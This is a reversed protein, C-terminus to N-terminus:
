YNSWKASEMAVESHFVRYHLPIHNGAANGSAASLNNELNQLDSTMSAYSANAFTSGTSLYTPPTAPNGLKLASPEDIAVMTVDVVPPLQAHTTSNYAGARSDYDYFPALSAQNTQDASQTPESLRPLIILAVINQALQSVSTVATTALPGLFWKDWQTNTTGQTQTDYISLYETPEIFQMLRYRYLKPVTTGSLYSPVSPDLGYTIYFGCANLSNNLGTYNPTSNLGNDDTAGLPACFFISHTTPYAIQSVTSLLTGNGDTGSGSVFQLDSGRGYTTATGTYSSSSPSHGNSDYYDYYTNLTAHSITRTMAEFAARADRFGEITGSTRTYARTIELSIASITILIVALVGVAVLMEVLTFGADGLSRPGRSLPPLALRPFM